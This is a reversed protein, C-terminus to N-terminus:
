GLSDLLMIGSFRGGVQLRVDTFYSYDHHGARLSLPKFAASPAQAQLSQEPFAGRKKGARREWPREM